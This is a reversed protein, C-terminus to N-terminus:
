RQVYEKLSMAFKDPEDLRFYGYLSEFQAAPERLITFYFADPGLLHSNYKGYSHFM